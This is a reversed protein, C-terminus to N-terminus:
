PTRWRPRYVYRATAGTQSRAGIVLRGNRPFAFLASFRTVWGWDVVKGALHPGYSDIRSDVILQQVATIVRGRALTWQPGAVKSLAITYRYFYGNLEVYGDPDSDGTVAVTTLSGGDSPIRGNSAVADNSGTRMTVPLSVSTEDGYWSPDLVKLKLDAQRWEGYRGTRDDSEDGEAGGVLYVQELQRAVGGPNEWRLTCPREDFWGALRRLAYRVDGDDPEILIPQTMERENRHIRAPFSGAGILRPSTTVTLSAIEAGVLGRRADIGYTGDLPINDGDATILVLRDAISM